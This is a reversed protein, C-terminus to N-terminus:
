AGPIKEALAIVSPTLALTEVIIHMATVVVIGTLTAPHVRGTVRQDHRVILLFVGLQVALALWEGWPMILQMPLTRGLVPEMIAILASLMLRRHWETQKRRIVAFAILGGFAVAGVQTLVLFYAPTFFPPQRNLALARLGAYSGLVMVACALALGVWGLKRHLALNDRQILTAQTTIVALWALMVFGHLHVYFPAAMPDVLGRAAFQFFGFVIFLSIGLMMRQWFAQDRIRAQASTAMAIGWGQTPAFISAAALRDIFIKDPCPSAMSACQLRSTAM